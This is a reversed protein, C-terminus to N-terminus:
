LRLAQLRELGGLFVNQKLLARQLERIPVEAPPIEQQAALASAVGAAQGCIMCRTMGRLIGPGDTSVSKGSGVLLYECGVPVTVGFPVDYTFDLFNAQKGPRKGSAPIVGVVEDSYFPEKPGYVAKTELTARGEIYRSLRIGLDVGIHAVRANAFGPVNEVLFDATYYAMKQAHLEYTSLKSVDLEEIAYLGTNIALFGTGRLGM